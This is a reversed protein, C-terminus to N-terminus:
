ILDLIDYDIYKTHIVTYGVSLLITNVFDDRKMREPDKHSNDDLELIAKINMDKDCIVFDVHKAQIKYRYTLKKKKDARPEILDFLRVKPYIVYDKADAIAKLKKYNQWENKTFLQRRQYANIFDLDDAIARESPPLEEKKYTYIIQPKKEAKVTTEVNTHTKASTHIEPEYHTQKKDESILKQINDPIVIKFDKITQNSEKPQQRVKFTTDAHVFHTQQVPQEKPIDDKSLHYNSESSPIKASKPHVWLQQKEDWKWETNWHENISNNSQTHRKISQKKLRKRIAKIIKITLYFPLIIIGIAIAYAIIEIMLESISM